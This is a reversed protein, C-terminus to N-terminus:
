EFSNRGDSEEAAREAALQADIASTLQRARAALLQDVEDSGTRTRLFIERARILNSSYPGNVSSREVRDFLINLFVSKNISGVALAVMIASLEVGGDEDDSEVKEYLKCTNAIFQRRDESGDCWEILVSDEINKIPTESRRGLSNGVLRLSTTYRGNEDPQFVLDLADKPYFRFYPGAYHGFERYKGASSRGFAFLNIFSQRVADFVGARRVAFMIVAQLEADFNSGKNAVDTWDMQQLFACVAIALEDVYEKPKETTLFIVMRLVEVAIPVGARIASIAQILGVIEPITLPDTARGWMLATYTEVPARGLVAVLRQCARSDLGVGCQLYTFWRGWVDDEVAADFFAEVAEADKQKWGQLFGTVLGVSARDVKALEERFMGIVQDPTDFAEGLGKGFYLVKLGGSSNTLFQPMLASVTALDDAAARGLAVAEEQSRRHRAHVDDITEDDSYDEAGFSGRALIKSRINGALDTPRLKACLADLAEREGEEFHKEDLTRITRLALWGEPWQRSPEINDIESQLVRWLGRQTWLGRMAEALMLEIQPAVDGNENLLRIALSLFPRYWEAMESFSQPWWGHDRKHAGFEPELSQFANWDSLSTALLSLGIKQKSEEPSRILQEIIQYRQDISAQTGSHYCHFLSALTATHSDSKSNEEEAEVLRILLRSARDFLAAEYAIARLITAIAQSRYSRLQAESAVRFAREFSALAQAPVVPALNEFMEFRLDDLDYIDSLWAGDALLGSALSQVVASDHLYGLRRSFSRAMREPGHLLETTLDSIPVAEVAQGALRNAVAHPLVARWEARSQLLGRNKLESMQRTIAKMSLDALRALVSLESASGTDAGNFSYLLSMAEAARMLEDSRAQNQDFLRRFLTEDGLAALEGGKTATSALALAVRSNGDSFNVITSIDISTLVPFRRELIKQIIDASVGDLRYFNTGEPDDDRIDYEVTILRIHKPRANETALRSHLASSCNDVVLVSGQDSAALADLMVAPPPDVDGQFDCYIVRNPDLTRNVTTLREDFLAQVLRTKGVGSLGVIRINRNAPLDERLENVADLASLDGDRGSRFIRVGDDFLFESSEDTEGHAWAGYPKWGRLPKGLISRLWVAVAPHASAWDAMKQADYFGLKIKGVHPSGVLADTMAKAREAMFKKSVDDQTSVIVYAGSAAAIEDFVKRLTYTPEPKMEDTIKSAPFKEAKVQFATLPALIYGGAKVPNVSAVEVDVGDDAARQNGGWTIAARSCGQGELEAMSLRAVLERAQEDNLAKIDAKTISFLPHM